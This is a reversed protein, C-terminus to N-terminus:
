WILFHTWLQSVLTQAVAGTLFHQFLQGSPHPWTTSSTTCRQVARGRQLWLEIRVKQILTKIRPLVRVGSATRTQIMVELNTWITQLIVEHTEHATMSSLINYFRQLNKDEWGPDTEDDKGAPEPVCKEGWPSEDTSHSVRENEPGSEGKRRCIGGDM